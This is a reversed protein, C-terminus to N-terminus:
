QEGFDTAIKRGAKYLERIKKLTQNYRGSRFDPFGWAFPKWDKDYYLTLDAYVGGSLYIKQGQFKGSALVIKYYDMYGPDLNVSRRGDAMFTKEIENTRLKIDAIGDPSILGAFSFFKRQIADGMEAEYYDTVDFPFLESEYDITGFESELRNRVEQILGTDSLLVAVFLKVPDPAKPQVM